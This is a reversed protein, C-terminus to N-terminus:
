EVRRRRVGLYQRNLQAPIDVAAAVTEAGNAAGTDTVEQGDAPAVSHRGELSCIYIYVQM